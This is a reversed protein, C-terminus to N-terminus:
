YESPLMLTTTSRDAETIIWFLTNNRDRHTTWIRLGCALATENEKRDEAPADDWDATEHKVLCAYADERDVEEIVGPTNVIIGLPFKPSPM